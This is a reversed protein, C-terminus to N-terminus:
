RNSAKNKRLNFTPKKVVFGRADAPGVLMKQLAREPPIKKKVADDFWQARSRGLEGGGFFQVQTVRNSGALYDAYVNGESTVSKRWFEKGKVKVKTAYYDSSPPKKQGPVVPTLQIGNRIDDQDEPDTLVLRCRCNVHVPPQVDFQDRRPFQKGDQPACTPCTRSDLAAVFEYELGELADANADWVQEHVQRNYDQVATRAVARAQSRIRREANPAIADAIQKTTSGDIIGKRVESQIVGLNSKTWISLPDQGDVNFLKKITTNNVKSNLATEVSRAVEGAGVRPPAVPGAREIMDIAAKEIEPTHESMQAVLDEAFKRNYPKLVQAVQPLMERLAQDRLLSEEPLRARVIQQVQLMVNRLEPNALKVAKEGYRELAFAHRIFLSLQRENM